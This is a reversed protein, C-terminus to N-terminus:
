VRRLVIRQHDMLRREFCQKNYSGALARLRQRGDPERLLLRVVRLAALTKRLGPKALKRGWQRMTEIYDLRGNKTELVEFCPRATRAIQEFSAPLWSGPYFHRLTALLNLDTGRPAALSIRDPEPIREGWTMTQLYLRGEERLLARCLRFFRDYIEEQLGLRYEKESCFHEFAGISIVGAFRGMSVPDVERWDVERVDLGHRRCSESQKPSLTLGVGVGGRRRITELMGGWGCGIDLLRDGAEFRLRDLVWDHKDRQAQELSKTYDGDYLAATIDAHEGLSLRWIEDMYDYTAAIQEPSAM